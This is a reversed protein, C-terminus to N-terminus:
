DVRLFAPLNNCLKTPKEFADRVKRSSKTPNLVSLHNCNVQKHQSSTESRLTLHVGLSSAVKVVVKWFSPCANGANLVGFSTPNLDGINFLTTCIKGDKDFGAAAINDVRLILFAM